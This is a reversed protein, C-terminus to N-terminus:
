RIVVIAIGLDLNRWERDATLAPVGLMRALVLCARDGLSLGLQRTEKEMEGVRFAQEADLSHIDIGLEEIDRRLEDPRYAERLLRGYTEAINTASMAVDGLHQAVHDAGAERRFLAVLASADFVVSSM